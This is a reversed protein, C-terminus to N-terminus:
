VARRIAAVLARREGATTAPLRQWAPGVKVDAFFGAADEPFHLFASSGRYFVGRRKEVLGDVARIRDLLPELADLAVATAHKM